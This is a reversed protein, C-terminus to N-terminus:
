GSKWTCIVSQLWYVCADSTQPKEVLTKRWSLMWDFLLVWPPRHYKWFPWLLLEECCFKPTSLHLGTNGGRSVPCLPVRHRPPVTLALAAFALLSSRAQSFEWEHPRWCGRKEDLRGSAVMLRLLGFRGAHSLCLSLSQSDVFPLAQSVGNAGGVGSRWSWGVGAQLWILRQGVLEGLPWGKGLDEGM